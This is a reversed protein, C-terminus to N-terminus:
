CHEQSHWNTANRPTYSISHRGIEKVRRLQLLKRIAIVSQCSYRRCNLRPSQTVISSACHTVIINTKADCAQLNSTALYYSGYPITSVQSVQATERYKKSSRYVATYRSTPSLRSTDDGLYRRYTDLYRQYRM